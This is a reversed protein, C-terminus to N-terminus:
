VLLGSLSLSDMNEVMVCTGCAGEPEITHSLCVVPIAILSIHPLRLLSLTHYPAGYSPCLSQSAPQCAPSFVPPLELTGSKCLWLAGILVLGIVCMHSPSSWRWRECAM